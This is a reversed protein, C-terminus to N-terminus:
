DKKIENLLKVISGYRVGIKYEYYGVDGNVEEAEMDWAIAKALSINYESQLAEYYAMKDAINKAERAADEDAAQNAEEILSQYIERKEELSCANFGEFWDSSPRFGRADKHLDSILEFEDADDYANLM